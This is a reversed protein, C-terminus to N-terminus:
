WSCPMPAPGGMFMYDILWSLDLVTTFGDCDMDSVYPPCGLSGGAFLADIMDGIDLATHFGDGDMDGNQTYTIAVYGDTLNIPEISEGAMDSFYVTSPEIAVHVTRDQLTDPIECDVEAIIKVLIGTSFPLIAAAYNEGHTDAIATVRVVSDSLSQAAYYEWDSILTGAISLPVLGASDAKFTLLDALDLVLVIQFAWISDAENEFFVSLPV